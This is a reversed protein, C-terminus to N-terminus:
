WVRRGLTLSRTNLAPSTLGFVAFNIYRISSRQQARLIISLSTQESNLKNDSHQLQVFACKAMDIKGTGHVKAKYWTNCSRCINQRQAM